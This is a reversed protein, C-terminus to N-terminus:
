LEGYVKQIHGLPIQFVMKLSVRWTILTFYCEALQLLGALIVQQFVNNLSSM